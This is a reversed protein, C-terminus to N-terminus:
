PNIADKAMNWTADMAVMAFDSALSAHACEDLLRKMETAVETPPKDILLRIQDTIETDIQSNPAEALKALLANLSKNM